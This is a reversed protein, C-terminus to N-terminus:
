ICINQLIRCHFISLFLPLSSKSGRLRRVESQISLSQIRDGCPHPDHQTSYSANVGRLVLLNVPLPPKTWVYFITSQSTLKLVFLCNKATQACRQKYENSQNITWMYPVILCCLSLFFTYFHYTYLHSQSILKSHCAKTCIDFRHCCLEFLCIFQLINMNTAM